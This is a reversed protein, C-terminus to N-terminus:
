GGQSRHSFGFNDEGGIERPLIIRLRRAPSMPITDRAMIIENIATGFLGSSCLRFDTTSTPPLITRSRLSTPLEPRM